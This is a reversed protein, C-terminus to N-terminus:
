AEGAYEPLASQSGWECYSRPVHAFQRPPQGAREEACRMGSGLTFLVKEPGELTVFVQGSVPQRGPGHVIKIQHADAFYRMQMVNNLDEVQYSVALIGDSHSPHLAIRHHADDLRLYCTDGVWDSVKSGVLETWFRENASVDMCRMSVGQFDVIGTDRSPFYRWGNELPRWVFEVTVGNPADCAVYAKVRRTACGTEDGRHCPFGRAEMTQEIAELDRASSVSLGIAAGPQATTLCLSYARTDSRFYATSDDGGVVELGVVDRAFSSADTLDACGIRVYRLARLQHTM